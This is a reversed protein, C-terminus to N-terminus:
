SNMLDSANGEFRMAVVSSRVILSDIGSLSNTIADPLSYALFAADDDNRLLRFPMAIFRSVGKSQIHVSAGSPQIARLAIGMEKASSFRDEPRKGIARAIIDGLASM